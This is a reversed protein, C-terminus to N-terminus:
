NRSPYIGQIAICYQLTLYPQMNPHATSEGATGIAAANLTASPAQTSFPNEARTAWANGAPSSQDGTASSGMAVHVHAPMETATLTHNEEGASRGLTVGNGVGVPARGRLDPLAFTTQGNGGYTTGLLSFLAQNQNIAMIQGDCPLWGQPVIGFGFLRIEALFPESM